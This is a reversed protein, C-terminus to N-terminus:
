SRTLTKPDVTSSVYFLNSSRLPWACTWSGQGEGRQSGFHLSRSPAQFISDSFASEQQTVKPVDSGGESGQFPKLSLIPIIVCQLTKKSSLHHM